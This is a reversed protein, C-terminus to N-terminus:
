GLLSGCRMEPVAISRVVTYVGDDATELTVGLYKFYRQLAVEYSGADLCADVLLQDVITNTIAFELVVYDDMVHKVYSVVYETEVETLENSATSLFM